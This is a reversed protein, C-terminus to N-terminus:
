TKNVFAPSFTIGCSAFTAPQLVVLDVDLSNSITYDNGIFGLFSSTQIAPSPNLVNNIVITLGSLASDTPFMDTITLNQQGVM